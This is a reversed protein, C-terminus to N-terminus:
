VLFPNLSYKSGVLFTGIGEPVGGDGWGIGLIQCITKNLRSDHQVNDSDSGVNGISRKDRNAVLDGLKPKGEYSDVVREVM